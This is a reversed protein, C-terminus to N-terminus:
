DMQAKIFKIAVEVERIREMNDATRPRLKKLYLIQQLQPLTMQKYVESLPLNNTMKTIKQPNVNQRVTAAQAM